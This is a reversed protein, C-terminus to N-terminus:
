KVFWSGFTNVFWSTCKSRGMCSPLKIGLMKKMMSIKEETFPPYRKLTDFGTQHDYVAKANSLDLFGHKGHYKGMGAPGVGGFPLDPVALHFLCDNVCVGGATTHDLIHKVVERDEAFVYLALPKDKGYMIDIGEKMSDIEIVPLIPGFIEDQMILAEPSVNKLVTPAIYKYAQDYEGGCLIDQGEILGVLGSFTKENIIRGYDNSEKPNAGFFSHIVQPVMKYFDAAISKDLLVYDPAVCTQGANMFKGQLLRRVSVELDCSRDVFAPSKGGLELTVSILRKSAANMVVKGVRGSGTVFIKDWHLDLLADNSTDEETVWFAQSDLYQPVLDRIIRTTASATRPPKIIAGNGAAIAPILPGLTLQLPYNWAGMILIVGLPEYRIYSRAPQLAAPTDVVEDKMWSSLHDLTHDIETILINIETLYSEFSSKGLDEYLANDILTSSDKLLSKLANLQTVRWLYSKTRGKRCYDGIEEFKINLIDQM